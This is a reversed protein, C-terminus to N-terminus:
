VAGGACWIGKYEVELRGVSRGAVPKSATSGGLRLGTPQEV